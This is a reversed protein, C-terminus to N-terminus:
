SGCRRKQVPFRGQECPLNLALGTSVRTEGTCMGMGVTRRARTARSRTSQVVQRKREAFLFCRPDNLLEGRGGEGPQRQEV